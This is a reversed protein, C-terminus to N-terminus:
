TLQSFNNANFIYEPFGILTICDKWTFPYCKDIWYIKGEQLKRFEIQQNDFDSGGSPEGDVFIPTVKTGRPATMSVQSRTYTELSKSELLIPEGRLGMEYLENGANAVEQQAEDITFVRDGFDCIQSVDLGMRVICSLLIDVVEKESYSTM